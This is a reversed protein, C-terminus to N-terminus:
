RVVPPRVDGRQLGTCPSWWRPSAEPWPQDGEAWVPGMVMGAWPAVPPCDPGALPAETGRIRLLTSPSLWSISRRTSLPMEAAPASASSSLTLTRVVLGVQISQNLVKGPFFLIGLKRQLNGKTAGQCPESGLFKKNLM